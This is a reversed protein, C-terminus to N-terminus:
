DIVEIHKLYPTKSFLKSKFNIKNKTLFKELLDVDQKQLLRNIGFEGTDTFYIEAPTSFGFLKGNALGYAGLLKSANESSRKNFKFVVFPLGGFKERGKEIMSVPPLHKLVKKDYFVIKCKNLGLTTGFLLIQKFVEKKRLSGVIFGVSFM